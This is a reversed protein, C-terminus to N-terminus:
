GARVSYVAELPELEFRFNEIVTNALLKKCMDQVERRAKELDKEALARLFNPWFEYKVFVAKVPQVIQIFTQANQLTDLPLYCAADVMPERKQYHEMGSPSFFSVLLFLSPDEEKMSKMLPLGQDFEGLSACHFWLVKRDAPIQARLKAEWNRRGSVWAKAKPHFWSAMHLM